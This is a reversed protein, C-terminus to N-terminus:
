AYSLAFSPAWVIGSAFTTDTSPTSISVNAVGDVGMIAQYLKAVLLTSGIDAAQAYANVASQVAASVTSQVAGAKLTVSGAITQPQATVNITNTKVCLPRKAILVSTVAAVAASSVPGSPGGIQVNVEGLDYDALVKVRTIESSASSAHYRYSSEVSGTALTGWKDKCRQRYSEDSEVDTGQTTIWTGTSINAVNSVSVGALTPNIVSISESAVNYAAGAVEAKVPVTVSGSAPITFATTNRFRKGSVGAQQVLYQGATVNVPGVGATDTFTVTGETFTPQKRSEQFLNAGVLDLWAGSALDVFGGRAIESVDEAVLSLFYSQYEAIHRLLTGPQWSAPVFNALRLLAVLQDLVEDKSPVRLLDSLTTM